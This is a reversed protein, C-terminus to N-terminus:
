QYRQEEVSVVVGAAAEDGSAPATQRAPLSQLDADDLPGTITEIRNRGARKAAYLGVDARKLVSSVTDTRDGAETIGISVTAHISNGGVATVSRAVDELLRRCAQEAGKLSTELLLMAYEEGGVRGAVDGRRINAQIIRALHRLVEDGADHGYTDNIMKFHDVDIMALCLPRGYRHTRDLEMSVRELFHRRNALGTLADTTALVYLRENAAALELQRARLQLMNRARALLEVDDVPKRLFDNAGLKLMEYLTEKSEEATIVVVPVDRLPEITRFRRLFEGGDMGPMIYDLMVLDPTNGICWELAANPDTFTTVDTEELRRAYGKLLLANPLQDDIIAVRTM